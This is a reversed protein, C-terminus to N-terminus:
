APVARLAGYAATWAGIHRDITYEGAVRKAGAKLADLADLTRNLAGRWDNRRVLYGNLGPRIFRRYERSPSAVIAAGAAAYEMGKCWSKAENFRNFVLPVLGVDLMTLMAPLHDYPRFHQGKETPPSALGGVGLYDLIEPGGCGVFTVDPNDALWGPLWPRLLDLDGHRATAHGAWGVHVKIRPSRYKAMEHEAWVDPDLYNGLVVTPGLRRYADALEPTSCTILDAASMAEHMYGIVDQVYRGSPNYAPVSDYLDDIDYVVVGRRRQFEAILDGIGPAAVRQLVLVDADVSSHEDTIYGVDWGLRRLAEGPARCRYHETGGGVSPWFVVSPM